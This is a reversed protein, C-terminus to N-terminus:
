MKIEKEISPSLVFNEFFARREDDSMAKYINAAKICVALHKFVFSKLRRKAANALGKAGKSVAESYAAGLAMCIYMCGDATLEPLVEKSVKRKM